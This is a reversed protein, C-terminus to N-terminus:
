PEPMLSLAVVVLATALTAAVVLHIARRRLNVTRRRAAARRRSEVARGTQPPPRRRQRHSEIHAGPVVGRHAEDGSAVGGSVVGRSATADFASAFASGFGSSTLRGPAFQTPTFHYAASGTDAAGTAATETAAAGSDSVWKASLAPNPAEVGPWATPDLTDDHPAPHAPDGPQEATMAKSLRDRNTYHDLEGGPQEPDPSAFRVAIPDRNRLAWRSLAAVASPDRNRLLRRLERARRGGLGGRRAAAIVELGLPIPNLVIGAAGVPQVAASGEPPWLGCVVLQGDSRKRIAEAILVTRADVSGPRASRRQGSDQPGPGARSGGARNGRSRSGTHEGHSPVELHTSRFRTPIGRGGSDVSGTRSGWVLVRCLLEIVEACEPVTVTAGGARTDGRSGDCPGLRDALSWGSVRESVFVVTGTRPCVIANHAMVLGSVERDGADAVTRVADAGCPPRDLVWLCVLRPTRGARRGPSGSVDPGADPDPWPREDWALVLSHHPGGGLIRLPRFGPLEADGDGRSVTNHHRDSPSETATM